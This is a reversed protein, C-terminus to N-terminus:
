GEEFFKKINEIMYDIQENNLAPHVPLSLIEKAHTESNPYMGEKYGMDVYPQQLHIPIPYHVATEIRAQALYAKLGDRQKTRIAYMHYAPKIEKTQKPPLVIDGVGALGRDFRRATRRRKQVWKELYELQVKGIAASSSSMRGTLGILKHVYADDKTRGNDRLSDVGDAIEASDTTVMGGDGLVTMNKSPYFSFAAADGLSGIKKGKYVGGHAQCADELIKIDYASAFENLTTMDAPYGYLHVPIVVKVHGKHQELLEKVKATDITYTSLNIDAFLVKAGSFLIANSTSIFTAPTTIVYDDKKVGMAILSFMLAMTGSNTTRAYKTGIYNAFETEFEQVSKGRLFRENRLADSSARIMRSNNVPEM